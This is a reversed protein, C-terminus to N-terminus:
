KLLLCKRTAITKDNMKLKYFYTGSAVSRSFNDTGNWNIEHKGSKLTENLITKVLQGKTNYISLKVKGTQPLNFSIKTTPNFPNPYNNLRVKELEVTEQENPTISDVSGRSFYVENNNSLLLFVRNNEDAALRLSNINEMECNVDEPIDYWSGDQHYINFMIESSLLKAQLMDGNITKIADFANPTNVVTDTDYTALDVTMLINHDNYDYKLIQYLKNDWFFCNNTTHYDLASIVEEYYNEDEFWIFSNNAIVYVLNQENNEFLIVYKEEQASLPFTSITTPNTIELDNIDISLLLNETQTYLIPNNDYDEMRSDYNYITQYSVSEHEGGYKNEEINWSNENDHYHNDNGSNHSIGARGQILSGFHYRTGRDFVIKYSSEPWVPNYWPWDTGAPYEYGLSDPNPYSNIYDNSEYPFGNTPFGNSPPGSHLKFGAINESIGAINPPFIYKHFDVNTYLTDYGTSPSISWFNPSSGHPHLYEATFREDELDGDEENTLAVYNGYLYVDECNGDRLDGTVPDFFKYAILIEESSVLTFYDTENYSSLNSPDNGIVTNTYTINDLIKVRQTSAIKFDNEVEGEIWLECDTILMEDEFIGIDTWVTDYLAIYNTWLSDADKYWNGGANTVSNVLESHHPYWSYVTFPKIEELVIEGCYIHRQTGEMKVYAIDTDAPLVNNGNEIFIEMPETIIPAKFTEYGGQLLNALETNTAPTTPGSFTLFDGSTTVEDQFVVDDNYLMFYIDSNSHVKGEFTQPHQGDIALFIDPEHLIQTQTFYQYEFLSGTKVKDAVVLLNNNDIQKIGYIRKINEIETIEFSNGNDSSTAVFQKLGEGNIEKLYYIRLEGNNLRIFQIDSSTPEHYCEDIDTIQFSEGSDHSSLLKLYGDNTYLFFVDDENVIQNSLLQIQGNDVLETSLDAFLQTLLLTFFIILARNM